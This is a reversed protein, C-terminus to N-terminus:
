IESKKIVCQDYLIENNNIVQIIESSMEITTIDNSYINQSEDIQDLKFERDPLVIWVSKGENLYSLFFTKKKDCNYEISDEPRITKENVTNSFMDVTPIPISDM